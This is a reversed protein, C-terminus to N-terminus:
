SRSLCLCLYLSLARARVRWGGGPLARFRAPYAALAVCLELLELRTLARVALLEGVVGERHRLGGGEM